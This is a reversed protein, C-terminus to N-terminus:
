PLILTATLLRVAAKGVLGRAQLNGIAERLSPRSVDFELALEREPPLKQGALLTGDLIMSELQETIVDLTKESSRM